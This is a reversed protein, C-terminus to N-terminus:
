IPVKWDHGVSRGENLGCGGVVGRDAGATPSLATGAAIVAEVIRRIVFVSGRTGRVDREETGSADQGDFPVPAQGSAKGDSPVLSVRKAEQDQARAHDAIVHGIRDAPCKHLAILAHDPIM